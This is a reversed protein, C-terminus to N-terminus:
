KRHVWIRLQDLKELIQDDKAAIDQQQKEINTLRTKVDELQSQLQEIGPTEEAHGKAPFVGLSFLLFCLFFRVSNKM